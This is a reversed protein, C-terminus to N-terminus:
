RLHAVDEALVRETGDPTEVLLAGDRGIGRATGTVRRGGASAAVRRGITGSRRTWDGIVQDTRGSELLAINRELEAFLERVLGLRRAGGSHQTISTAGYFNPTGRLAGEIKKADVDFNIGTGVVVHGVRGSEVSADVIVGAVKKSGITVDNPWKLEAGVGASRGIAEALSVGAAIPVLPLAGGDLRPRLVVSLWVGGEPSEWRRRMRGRGRTQREAVVVSGEAGGSEALGAAYDQTSGIEDFYYARCGIRGTRVATVEWPLLRDAGRVLRYGSGRRAEVGYGLGRITGVHRRVAAGGIGLAGGLDRGSLYGARRSKLLSLVRAPGVNDFSDYFM